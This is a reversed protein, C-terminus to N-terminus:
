MIAMLIGCHTVTYAYIGSMGVPWSVIRDGTKQIEDERHDASTKFGM